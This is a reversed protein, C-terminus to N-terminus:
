TGVIADSLRFYKQNSEEHINNKMDGRSQQKRLGPNLLLIVDVGKDWELLTGDSRGEGRYFGYFFRLDILFNLCALCKCQGLAKYKGWASAWFLWFRM